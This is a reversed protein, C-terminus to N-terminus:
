LKSVDSAPGLHSGFCSSLPLRGGKLRERQLKAVTFFAVVVQINDGEQQLLTTIVKQKPRIADFIKKQQLSFPLTITVKKLPKGTSFHHDVGKQHNQQSFPSLLL